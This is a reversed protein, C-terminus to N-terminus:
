LELNNQNDINQKRVRPAKKFAISRGTFLPLLARKDKEFFEKVSLIQIKPFIKKFLESEYFGASAAEIEMEKTPPNLTILIGMAAKEREVTGKLERVHLSTTKGGKVSIIAQKSKRKEDDIFPYVGDIGRDKGKKKSQAGGFPRAQVLSLAWWQFEYKDQEALAKASGYDEPIGHVKYNCEDEYTDYLRKRILQIALHTIDIGIWKRDLKQAADITTGCGCFPDLVVDGPNSSAKIIRELLSLPKQTPYGLRENAARNLFPIDSWWDRPLVGPKEDLYDRYTWESHEKEIEPSLGHEGTYPGGKGRIQYKRGDPDILKFKAITGPSYEYIATDWNFTYIKSPDKVYFFIIDHKKNWYKKSLEREKYCWAIENRFNKLGFITDLIIKLYHSATPDCHLYISGTAKLVRHLEILRTTMMVLYAMMACPGIFEYLGEIMRRVNEPAQRRLEEYGLVADPWHWTDSFAKIQSPPSDGSEDKFLINYDAQSNFPPDLYILDVSEDPIYEKLIRLNDGYYLTNEM